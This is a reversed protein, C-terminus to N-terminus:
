MIVFNCIVDNYLTIFIIYVFDCIIASYLLYKAPYLVTTWRFGDGNGILRSGHHLYTPKGLRDGYSSISILLYPFCMWNSSLLHPNFTCGFLHGIVPRSSVGLYTAINPFPLEASDARNHESAFPPQCVICVCISPLLHSNNLYVWM